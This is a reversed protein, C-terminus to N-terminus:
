TALSAPKRRRRIVALGALGAGFLALSAPEPVAVATVGRVTCGGYWCAGVADSNFMGTTVTSGDFNLRISHESNNFNINGSLLGSAAQMLDFTAIRYVASPGRIGLFDVLDFDVPNPLATIKLTIAVLGDIFAYPDFPTGSGARLHFGDSYATDSVVLTMAAQVNVVGGFPNGVPGQMNGTQTFTYIVDAKPSHAFGLMLAAVLGLAKIMRM